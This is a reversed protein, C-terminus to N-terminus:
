ESYTYQTKENLRCWQPYNEIDKLNHNIVNWVAPDEFDLRWASAGALEYKHVIATRLNLSKEDELWVKYTADEDKFESYFQGSETDWVKQANKETLLKEIDPMSLAKSTLETKGDKETEIWIRTYFPMGLILKDNPVDELYKQVIRDTWSLQSVSGAVGGGSWHQDYAMLVVYDVAEGLAKRDYCGLMNVDISVVLGQQRLLPAMERVFQTLLDRDSTKINEFDINIGDLEYLSAFALIQRIANDRSDANGLFDGTQASNEFNNSFLAWVKYGRGHAWKVYSSDAFNKVEGEKSVVQFWTPSIVDLGEIFKRSDLNNKLKYAYDWAMCIKGNEPKWVNDEPEKNVGEAPQVPTVNVFKKEIYGIIGDETMVKYWNEYEDYVRLDVDEITKTDYKKVIPEFVSRGRRIVAGKKVLSASQRVSDLFDIIVANNAEAYKITIGYYDKLFEIPVYVKGDTEQAPINLTVPENNVFAELSGTKMRIVRDKTTITLKHVKADWNINKDINDRVVEFPLLIRDGTIQDDSTFVCNGEIIVHTGSDSFAPVVTNNPMFFLRYACYAVCACAIISVIIVLLIGSIKKLFCWRIIYSM